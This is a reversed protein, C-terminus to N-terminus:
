LITYSGSYSWTQSAIDSSVWTIVLTNNAISSTIQAGMGAIAGCFAVGAADSTATFNSAVPLTIEFSTATAALTPNATFQGSFTVTNAIQMWQGQTMTVNADMNAEASRTPNWTGSVSQDWNNEIEIVGASENIIIGTGASLSISDFSGNTSNTYVLTGNTLTDPLKLGDDDLVMVPTTFDDTAKSLSWKFQTRIEGSVPTTGEKVDMEFTGIRRYGSSATYAFYNIIGVPDDPGIITESGESGGSRAFALVPGWDSDFNARITLGTSTPDAIYLDNNELTLRSEEAYGSLDTISNLLTGFSATSSAGDMLLEASDWKLYLEGDGNLTMVETPSAAGFPSAAWAFETNIDGAGPTTGVVVGLRFAGVLQYSAGDYAFYFEQGIPDSDDVVVPTGITGRSKLYANTACWNNNEHQRTVLGMASDGFINSHNSNLRGKITAIGAYNFSDINTGVSFNNDTDDYFLVTPDEDIVATPNVFLVAGATGSTIAGGISPPFSLSEVKDYVADKTPVTLDANWGVGYVETDVSLATFTPSSTTLVNQDMDYLENAGQGTDLTTTTIPHSFTFDTGDYDITGDGGANNFTLITGQTGDFCAGSLCDGVSIIDGVGSGGALEIVTGFSDITYLASTSGNDKSYLKLYSETPTSPDSDQEYFVISNGSIPFDGEGYGTGYKYGAFALNQHLLLIFLWVVRKM